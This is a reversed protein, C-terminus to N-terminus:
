DAIKPWSVYPSNSFRIWSFFWSIDLKRKRWCEWIIAIRWGENLLATEVRSDREMNMAFKQQWKQPNTKPITAYSCGSHRHWFCGHVFVAVKYKSLVIDPVYLAVVTGLRYRFGQAHLIKRVLVEAKTNSSRINSMMKSRRAPSVIDM